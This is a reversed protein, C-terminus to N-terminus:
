LTVKNYRDSRRESLRQRLVSIFVVLAGLWFASFSFKVWVPVQPDHWFQYLGYGLLPALGLGVLLWGFRRFWRNKPEHLHQQIRDEESMTRGEPTLPQQLSQQMSQQMLQLQEYHIRCKDCQQVHLFLRQQQQQTLEDDLYGSILVTIEDCSYPSTM